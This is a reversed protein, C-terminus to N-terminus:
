SAGLDLDEPALDLLAPALVVRLEAAEEAVGVEREPGELDERGEGRPGGLAESRSAM